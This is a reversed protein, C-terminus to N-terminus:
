KLNDIIGQKTEQSKKLLNSLTSMMKSLRDMAMQLRLSEMEGMESMSDLDNKLSEHLAEIEELSAGGWEMIPDIELQRAGQIKAFTPVPKNKELAAARAEGIVLLKGPVQGALLKKLLEHQKKSLSQNEVLKAITVKLEAAADGADEMLTPPALIVTKENALAPGSMLVLCLISCLLPFLSRFM